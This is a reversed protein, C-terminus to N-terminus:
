DLSNVFDSYMKGSLYFGCDLMNNLINVTEDKAILKKNYALKLVFLTGHAKVKNIGAIQKATEDDILILLNKDKALSISNLEGIDIWSYKEFERKAKAYEIIVWGEKISEKLLIAEKSNKQKLIEEYVEKVILVKGFLKKLLFLYGTKGLYILPTANSVIM